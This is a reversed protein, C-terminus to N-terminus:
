LSVCTRVYGAGVTDVSGFQERPSGRAHLSAHRHGLQINRLGVGHIRGVWSTAGLAGVVGRHGVGRRGVGHRGIGRLRIGWVTSAPQTAAPDDDEYPGIVTTSM